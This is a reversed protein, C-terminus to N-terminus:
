KKHIYIYDNKKFNQRNKKYWRIVCNIGDNLKMKPAWGLKKLKNSNLKYYIDKGTRDKTITTYKFFDVNLIKSIKILLKKISIFDYSSIHYIQGNKGKNMAIYTAECVDSIHIFSRISKGGGHLPIKKKNYFYDITKPIIRYLRQYEGYVNSARLIIFPFNFNENLIKLYYDATTRSVAYPTSPDYLTNETLKHKKSGYVEPTSIHILRKIVKLEFIKKYLLPIELSNTKFWDEPNLWSEGVM